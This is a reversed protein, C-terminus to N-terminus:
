DTTLVGLESATAFPHTEDLPAIAVFRFYRAQVSKKLKVETRNKSKKFSGAKAAKGWKKPDNSFYIEYDKIRGNASGQRPCYYFGVIEKEKGLDLQVEHPYDPKAGQWQTHWYTETSGDLVNSAPSKREESDVHIIKPKPETKGYVTETIPSPALGKRSARARVTGGAALDFGGVYAQFPAGNIACEIKADPTSSSLEVWGDNNRSVLVPAAVPMRLRALAATDDKKGTLPRVMFGFAFPRSRLIYKDMTGAGCSGNGIGAQAIDLSLYVEGRKELENTHEAEDLDASTYHLASMAMPQPMSFLVGAGSRDALAVWRVDTKVGTEQPRPYPIYQETVTSEYVGVAAGWNRDMFNEQPGRGYWELNELRQDLAMSIGVKPLSVNTEDPIVHSNVVMTGDGYISYFLAYDFSSGEASATMAAHVDVTGAKPNPRISFSRCTHQLADLHNSRWIKKFPRDNDLPARFVNLQPAQAPAIVPKGNYELKSLTGSKKNFVASFGKGSVMTTEGSEEVNPMPASCAFLPAPDAPFPVAVQEWAIEHGADAWSTDQKLRFSLRLWYEAGPTATVPKFPITLETSAGAPLDVAPLSGQQIVTGDESLTWVAALTNLDSHIFWNTLRLRGQLADVEEILIPQYAKKVELLKPSISRDAFVIGNVCFNGNNPFDGFDGGYAGFVVGNADTKNLTQDVWDWIFGGALRKRTRFTEVYERLNGIANGMAHAYECVVFPKQKESQGIRDLGVVSPYMTSDVDCLASNREYHSPRTTDIAKLAKEAYLFNDGPGAENGLSWMIISPHNKDRQVMSVVRDVHAKRWEPPHSLSDKGYYYGHSEINAEDMVFLGYEDCLEYWRPGNPYHSTRVANINHRKMLLIDKLMLEATVRRGTDPDHEHRNTGYFILPKGNVFVEQGKISVERYGMRCSRIDVAKGHRNKLTLVATYLNPTEATWKLPNAVTKSLQVNDAAPKSVSFLKNGAADFLGLELTGEAGVLQADLKLEADRYQDDLDTTIFFDQIRMAPASWLYVDRFIGSLRWFDQCELYSGDSWRYVEVALTNEGTKLYPTLNFEAPTYSGQSYGVKKGNVWIYFASEVGDFHIFTERDKWDKSVTFTRRYSGVPNRNIYSTFEEPPTGTVSPWDRKFPYSQNSYIPVGYGKMQWNSPVEITDWESVDYGPKYFDVPRKEPRPAWNFKWDGNLLQYYDSESFDITLAAKESQFPLSTARAPEKNIGILQENEWDEAAFSLLCFGLTFLGFLCSFVIVRM